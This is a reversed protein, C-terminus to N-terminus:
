RCTAAENPNVPSWYVAPTFGIRSVSHGVGLAATEALPKGKCPIPCQGRILAYGCKECRPPM